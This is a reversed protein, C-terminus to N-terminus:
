KLVYHYNEGNKWSRYEHQGARIKKLISCRTRILLLVIENNYWFALFLFGKNRNTSLSYVNHWLWCAARPYTCYKEIGFNLSSLKWDSRQKNAKKRGEEWASPLCCRFIKHTSAYIQFLIAENFLHGSLIALNFKHSKTGKRQLIM